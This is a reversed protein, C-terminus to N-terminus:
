TCCPTFNWHSININFWIAAMLTIPLWVDLHRWMARFIYGQLKSLFTSISWKKNMRWVCVTSYRQAEHILLFYLPIALRIQCGPMIHIYLLDPLLYARRSKFCCNWNTQNSFPSLASFLLATASFLITITTM